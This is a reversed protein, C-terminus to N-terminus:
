VRKGSKKRRFEAAAPCTAFHSTRRGYLPGVVHATGGSVRITGGDARGFDVPMYRGHVTRVWHVLAGCGRCPMPRRM